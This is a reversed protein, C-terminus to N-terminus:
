SPKAYLSVIGRYGLKEYFDIAIKNQSPFEATIIEAGKKRLKDVAESFMKKGLNGRRYEPLIYFEIIAGETKPEYFLRDRIDAKIIGVIKGEDDALLVLNKENKVTAKLYEEAEAALNDSVKMLPDFEGNLRKLRVVLESAKAIDKITAERITVKQIKAM